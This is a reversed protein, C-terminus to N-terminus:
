RLVRRIRLWSGDRLRRGRSRRSGSTRGAPGADRHPDPDLFTMVNGACVIADFPDAVMSSLDLTALDGTQWTPGPHDAEAAAILVPDIDVGVVRTASNSCVAVSEDRVVGLM